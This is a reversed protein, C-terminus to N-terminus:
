VASAIGSHLHSYTIYNSIPMDVKLYSDIYLLEQFDNM